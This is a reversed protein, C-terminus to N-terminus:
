NPLHVAVYFAPRRPVQPRCSLWFYCNHPSLQPNHGLSLRIVTEASGIREAMNLLAPPLLGREAIAQLGFCVEASCDVCKTFVKDCRAYIDAAKMGEVQLRTEKNQALANLFRIKLEPQDFWLVTTFNGHSLSVKEASQKYEADVSLEKM